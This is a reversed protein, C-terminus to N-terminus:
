ASASLLVATLGDQCYLGVIRKCEAIMGGRRRDSKRCSRGDSARHGGYIGRNENLFQILKSALPAANLCGAGRACWSKVSFVSDVPDIRASGENEGEEGGVGFANSALLLLPRPHPPRHNEV